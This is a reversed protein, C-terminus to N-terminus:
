LIYATRRLIEGGLSMASRVPAPLPIGGALRATTGHHVEDEAMTELIARSKVDAPPLRGLHDKLHAEVQRETESVFGLSAADGLAGAAVGICFSGAYWFPGLLSPRAGLEDLRARCWDLHDREERAADLLHARTEPKRAAVAQGVYLAQAAIEGAHNVRMLAGSTRRDRASLRPEDLGAGPSPRSAAVGGALARLGEDLAALLSDSWGLRRSMPSALLTTWHRRANYTRSTETGRGCPGHIIPRRKRGSGM